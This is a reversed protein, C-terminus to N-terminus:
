IIVLAGSLFCERRVSVYTHIYTSYMYLVLFLLRLTVARLQLAPWNRVCARVYTM